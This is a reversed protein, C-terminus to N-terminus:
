FGTFTLYRTEVPYRTTLNQHAWLSTFARQVPYAFWSLLLQYVAKPHLVDNNSPPLTKIFDVYEYSLFTDNKSRLKREFASLWESGAVAVSSSRNSPLAWSFAAVNRRDVLFCRITPLFVLHTAQIKSIATLVGTSSFCPKVLWRILSSIIHYFLSLTIVSTLEDGAVEM